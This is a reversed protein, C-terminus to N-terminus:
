EEGGKKRFFFTPNDRIWSVFNITCSASVLAGMGLSSQVNAIGIMQLSGSVISSITSAGVVGAMFAVSFLLLWELQHKKKAGLLYIIAGTFSGLVVEPAMGTLFTLYTAGIATPLPETTLVRHPM